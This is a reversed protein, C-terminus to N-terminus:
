GHLEIWADFGGAMSKACTYGLKKVIVVAKM